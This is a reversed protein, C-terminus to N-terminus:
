AQEESVWGAPGSLGTHDAQRYWSGYWRQTVTVSSHGMRRSLKELPVGRDWMIASYTHRLDYPVDIKVDTLQLARNWYRNRFNNLNIMAGRSSSFVYTDSPNTTKRFRLRALLVEDIGLVRSASKTKLIDSVSQKGTHSTKIAKNIDLTREKLDIDDWTLAGLEQPRAGTYALGVIFNSYEQLIEDDDWVSVFEDLQSQTLPNPVYERQEGEIFVMEVPNVSIYKDALAYKFAINLPQKIKRKTAPTYGLMDEDFFDQVITRTIDKLRYNGLTDRINNDYNARARAQVTENGRSLQVTEVYDNLTMKDIVDSSVLGLSLERLKNQAWVKADKLYQFHKEKRTPTYYYVKYRCNNSCNKSKCPKPESVLTTM